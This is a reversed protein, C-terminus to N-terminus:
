HQTRHASLWPHSLSRVAVIKSFLISFLPQIAGNIAACILGVLIYPWEPLNLRLVKLFSVPPANEDEQCVCLLPSSSIFSDQYSFVLRSTFTLQISYALHALSCKM